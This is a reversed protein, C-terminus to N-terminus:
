TLVLEQTVFGYRREGEISLGLRGETGVVAVEEAMTAAEEHGKPVDVVRALIAGEEAGAEETVILVLAVGDATYNGM